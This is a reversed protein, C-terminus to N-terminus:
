PPITKLIPFIMFLDLQIPIKKIMMLQERKTRASSYFRAWNLSSEKEIVEISMQAVESENIGDSAKYSFTESGSFGATSTYSLWVVEKLKQLCLLDM